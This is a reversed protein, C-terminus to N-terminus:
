APDPTLCIAILRSRFSVPKSVSEVGSEFASKQVPFSCDNTPTHAECHAANSMHVQGESLVLQMPQFSGMAAGLQIFVIKM